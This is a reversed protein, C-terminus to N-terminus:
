WILIFYSLLSPLLNGSALSGMQATLVGPLVKVQTLQGMTLQLVSGGKRPLTEPSGLAWCWQGEGPINGAALALWKQLTVELVGLAATVPVKDQSRGLLRGTSGM